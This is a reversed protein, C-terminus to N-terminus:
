CLYLLIFSLNINDSVELKRVGLSEEDLVVEHFDLFMSSSKMGSDIAFGVGPLSYVPM